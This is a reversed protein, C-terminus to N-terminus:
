KEEADAGVKTDVDVNWTGITLTPDYEAPDVHAKESGHSWLDYAGPRQIGRRSVVSLDERPDGPHDEVPEVHATEGQNSPDFRGNATNDYHFPINFGDLVEFVGPNDPSEPTLYGSKFEVLPDRKSRRVQGGVNEEVQLERGLFEYLCASGTIPRGQHNKVEFDYGDPPFSGKLTKYEDLALRLAHIRSKTAETMAKRRLGAAAVMVLTFLITIVAIVMLVEVITFGQPRRFSRTMEDGPALTMRPEM